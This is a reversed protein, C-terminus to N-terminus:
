STWYVGIGTKWKSKVWSMFADIIEKECSTLIDDVYVGVVGVPRTKDWECIQEDSRKDPFIRPIAKKQQSLAQPVIYRVSPALVSQKLSYTVGKVKFECTALKEDRSQEWLRPATRLGYVARVAQQPALTTEPLAQPPLPHALPLHM